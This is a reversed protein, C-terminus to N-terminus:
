RRAVGSALPQPGPIANRVDLTLWYAATHLILRMQNALPSRCSTRDSSSSFCSRACNSLFGCCRLATRAAAALATAFCVM